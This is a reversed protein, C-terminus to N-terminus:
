GIEPVLWAGLICEPKRVCLQVHSGEFLGSRDWLRNKSPVFVARTTDIEDGALEQANYFAQFVACDLYKSANRNKPVKKGDADLTKVLLKHTSTLPKMNEPDLLDFCNGLRIMAGVVAIKTSKAYRKAAWEWAQKPAYELFYTGHGLWDDANKSLKFAEGSVIKHAKAYTTGHFGVVTRHYDAYQKSM